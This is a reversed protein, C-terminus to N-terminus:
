TEDCTRGATFQEVRAPRCCQLKSRRLQADTSRPMNTAASRLQRRDSDTVLQIDDAIYAPTRGALSQHILRIPQIDKWFKVRDVTEFCQLSM